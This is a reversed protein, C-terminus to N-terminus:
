HSLNGDFVDMEANSAICSSNPFSSRKSGIPWVASFRTRYITPVHASNPGIAGMANPFANTRNTIKMPKWVSVRRNKDRNVYVSTASQHRVSKSYPKYCSSVGDDSAAFTWFHVSRDCRDAVVKCLNPRNWVTTRYRVVSRDSLMNRVWGYACTGWRQRVKGRGNDTSSRRGHRAKDWV